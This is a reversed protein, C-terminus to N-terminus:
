RPSGETERLRERAKQVAPHELPIAALRRYLARAAPSEAALAEAKRRAQSATEIWSVSRAITRVQEIETAVLNTGTTGHDAMLRLLVKTHPLGLAHGLEHASTQPVPENIGGGPIYRLNIRDKVFVAPGLYIGNVSLNKVYYLHLMGGARTNKPRIDLLGRVDGPEGLPVPLQGLVAEERVISEPWFTIGAQSWIANVKGLIRDVDAEQLTTRAAPVNSSQLLHIRLPILLWDEFPPPNAPEVPAAAELRWVAVMLAMTALLQHLRRLLAPPPEPHM